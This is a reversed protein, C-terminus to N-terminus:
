RDSYAKCPVEYGRVLAHLEFINAFQVSATVVHDELGEPVAGGPGAAGTHEM